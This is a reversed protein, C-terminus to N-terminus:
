YFDSFFNVFKMFTWSNIFFTWWNQFFPEGLKFFYMLKSFLDPNSFFNMSESFCKWSIKFFYHVFKFFDDIKFFNMSKSFLKHLKSFFVEVLKSPVKRLCLIACKLSFYYNLFLFSFYSSFSFSVHGPSLIFSCFLNYHVLTVIHGTTLVNRQLLLYIHNNWFLPRSNSGGGACGNQLKFLFPLCMFPNAWYREQTRNTGENKWNKRKKKRKNTRKKEM